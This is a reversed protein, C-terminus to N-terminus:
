LPAFEQTSLAFKRWVLLLLHDKLHAASIWVFAFLSKVWYHLSVPSTTSGLSSLQRTLHNLIFLINLSALTPSDSATDM